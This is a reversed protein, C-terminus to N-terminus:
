VNKIGGKHLKKMLKISEQQNAARDLMLNMQESLPVSMNCYEQAGVLVANYLNDLKTKSISNLYTILSESLFCDKQKWKLNYLIFLKKYTEIDKLFYSSFDVSQKSLIYPTALFTISKKSTLRSLYNMLYMILLQHNSAILIQNQSEFIDFYNSWIFDIDINYTNGEVNVSYGTDRKKSILIDSGKFNKSFSQMEKKLFVPSVEVSDDINDALNLCLVQENYSHCLSHCSNCVINEGERHYLKANGNITSELIDVKGCDCMLKRKTAVRILGTNIMKEIKMLMQQAYDKDIVIKDYHIGNAILDQIFINTQASKDKYSNLVNIGIINPMKFIDGLVNSMTPGILMGVNTKDQPKIPLTSIILENKM